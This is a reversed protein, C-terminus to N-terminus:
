MQLPVEQPHGAKWSAVIVGDFDLAIVLTPGALFPRPPILFTEVSPLNASIIVGPNKLVTTKSAVPLASTPAYGNHSRPPSNM